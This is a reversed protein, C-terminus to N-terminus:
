TLNLKEKKLKEAIKDKSRKILTSVTNIPVNMISAIERHKLGDNFNFKFALKQKAPLLEIETKIISAVERAELEKATNFQKSALLKKLNMQPKEESLMKELSICPSEKRYVHKKCWNSTANMSVIAIWGELSRSDKVSKLKEKEWLSHFIEQHIDEAIDRRKSLGLNGLKYFISKRVLPSMKKIFVNWARADRKKCKTLLTENNM